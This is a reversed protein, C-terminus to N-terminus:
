MLNENVPACNTQILFVDKGRVNEEIKVRIEGDSFRSVLAKAQKVGLAKSIKDALPKNSNGSFVIMKDM